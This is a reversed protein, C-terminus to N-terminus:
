EDVALRHGCHELPQVRDREEVGRELREGHVLEAVELEVFLLVTHVDIHGRSRDEGHEPEAGLHTEKEGETSNHRRLPASPPQERLREPPRVDREQADKEARERHAAVKHQVEVDLLLPLPTRM